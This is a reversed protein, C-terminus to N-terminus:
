CYVPSLPSSFPQRQLCCACVGSRPRGPLPAVPARLPRQHHSGSALSGVGVPSPSADICINRSDLARGSPVARCCGDSCQPRLYATGAHSGPLLGLPALVEAAALAISPHRPITACRPLVCVAAANPRRRRDGAGHEDAAECRCCAHYLGQAQQASGEEVSRQYAIPGCEARMQQWPTGALGARSPRCPSVRSMHADHQRKAVVDSLTAPKGERPRGGLAATLGVVCGRGEASRRGPSTTRAIHTRGSAAMPAPVPDAACALTFATYSVGHGFAFVPMGSYHRDTRGPPKAFSVSWPRVSPNRLRRSLPHHAAQGM